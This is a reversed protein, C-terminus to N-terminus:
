SVSEDGVADELHQVRADEGDRWLVEVVDIRCPRGRLDRRDRLLAAAARRLSASKRSGVAEAPRGTASSSRTKVEVFVVLEGIEALLDIEGLRTRVRRGLIRYGRAELHSAARAEGERALRDTSASM